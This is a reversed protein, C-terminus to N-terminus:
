EREECLLLSSLKRLATKAWGHKSVCSWEERGGERGEKRRGVCMFSSVVVEGLCDFGM